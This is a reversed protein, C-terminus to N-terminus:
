LDKPVCITLSISDKMCLTCLLLTFYMYKNVYCHDLYLEVSRVVHYGIQHVM